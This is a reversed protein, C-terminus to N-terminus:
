RTLQDFYAAARALTNDKDQKFNLDATNLYQQVQSRKEGLIDLMDGKRKVPQFRGDKKIYYNVKELAEAQYGDTSSLIDKVSKKEKKYVPTKGGYLEEYFGTGPLKNVSDRVLRVFRHGSISFSEILENILEMKLGNDLIVTESIEDFLLKVNDYYGGDYTITGQASKNSLFFPTGKVFEFTYPKYQRGNNLRSQDTEAQQYLGIANNVATTYFSSDAPTTQAKVQLRVFIIQFLFCATLLASSKM